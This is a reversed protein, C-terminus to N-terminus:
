NKSLLTNKELYSILTTKIIRDLIKSFNTLMSILRYHSLTKRDGGKFLPKIIAIKFNDPFISNEISLTYIYVLPSIILESISKFITIIVKDYGAATDDKFNQIIIRLESVDIKELFIKDFSCLINNNSKNLVLNLTENFNTALNKGVDTFYNNFVNSVEKSNDDINLIKDNVIVTKIKNNKPNSGTIENILQSTLKPNYSVKRFKEGYFKIKVLRLLKKFTNKYKKITFCLISM